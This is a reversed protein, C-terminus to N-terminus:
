ERPRSDRLFSWTHRRALQPFLLDQFHNDEPFVNVRPLASARRSILSLVNAAEFMGTGLSFPDYLLSEVVFDEM